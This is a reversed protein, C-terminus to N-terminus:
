DASPMEFTADGGYNIMWRTGFRDTFAGYLESWETRQLEMDVSGDQSLESYYRQAEESSDTELNLYVNNGQNLTQGLCEISDTGMITTGSPLALAVHMVHDLENETIGMQEGGFDRFRLPGKLEGGLVSHYFRFAEECNGRYNVYIDLKM